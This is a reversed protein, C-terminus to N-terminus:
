AVLQVTEAQAGPRTGLARRLLDARSRQLADEKIGIVGPPDDVLFAGGFFLDEGTAM